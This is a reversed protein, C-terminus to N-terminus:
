EAIQQRVTTPRWDSIDPEPAPRWDSPSVASSTAMPIGHGGVLALRPVYQCVTAILLRALTMYAVINHLSLLVGGYPLSELSVWLPYEIPIVISIVPM